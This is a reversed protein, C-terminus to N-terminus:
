FYQNRLSKKLQNKTSIQDFFSWNPPVKWHGKSNKTTKGTETAELVKNKSNGTTSFLPYSNKHFSILYKILFFFLITKRQDRVPGENAHKLSFAGKLTWEDLKWGFEAYKAFFQFEPSNQDFHCGAGSERSFCVRRVRKRPNALGVSVPEQHKPHPWGMLTRYGAFRAPLFM